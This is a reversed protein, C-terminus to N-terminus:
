NKGDFNYYDEPKFQESQGYKRLRWLYVEYHDVNACRPYPGSRELPISKSVKCERFTDLVQSYLKRRFEPTPLFRVSSKTHSELPLIHKSNLHNPHPQFQSDKFLKQINRKRGALILFGEDAYTPVVMDLRVVDRLIDRLLTPSKSVWKTEVVALYRGDDGEIGFDITPKRGKRSLASLIPHSVEAKVLGPFRYNLLQQLPHALLSERFLEERGCRLEFTLWGALGDAIKSFRNM